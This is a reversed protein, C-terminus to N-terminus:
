KVVVVEVAGTSRTVTLGVDQPYRVLRLDVLERGVPLRSITMEEIFPPLLPQRFTVRRDIADIEIGLVASLLLFPAGSAWAQPICAVPYRTPEYGPQRRFGCFLEPLRSLPMFLAAEFLGGLLRWAHNRHGTAGLGAAVIATDHPWVSGNHYSLPNYRSEGSGLTRVGWGSFMQDSMLQESLPQVREPLAIGTFLCHGANSARVRCPNKKGDLALAYTSLDECWFAEDFRSRLVDASARWRGAHHGDELRESLDSMGRLAAYAYGQVESLAIPGRAATGDQHFVSDHSDKWGQQVLGNPTRKGYELFGDGDLDGHREMWEVARLLNPWIEDLLDRDGTSRYYAAALMLYLPTSDVSGYYRGFPIEGLAAMEGDRMEHLIKGPEADASADSDDAQHASLFRLVGRALTPDVWLTQLATWLGDRGFPTSFWPVGAYPYPGYRTHTTLMRLDARSRELWGNLQENSTQIRCQEAEIRQVRAAARAVAEAYALVSAPERPGSQCTISLSLETSARGELRVVFRAHRRDIEDPTPRFLLNTARTIDDLGRYSLTVSTQGVREALLEGRRKRETGRVEFVDCFDAAYEFSLRLEVPLDGFNSVVVRELYAGDQLFMSRGVHLTAYPVPSRRARDSLDPNTLDVNLVLNNELVSSSLLLPRHSALRLWLLSVHRTGLHYLGHEGGARGMDGLENTVLFTNGSKLVHAGGTAQSWSGVVAFQAEPDEM